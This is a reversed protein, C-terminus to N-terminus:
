YTRFAGVIAETIEKMSQTPAFYEDWESPQVQWEHQRMPSAVDHGWCRILGKEKDFNIRINFQEIRQNGPAEIGAGHLEFWILAYNEDLFKTGKYFMIEPALRSAASALYHVLKKFEPYAPKAVDLMIGDIIELVSYVKHAIPVENSNKTDHENLSLIHKCIGVLEGELTRIKKRTIVKYSGLPSIDIEMAGPQTKDGYELCTHWAHKPPKNGVKGLSLLEKIIIESNIPDFPLEDDKSDMKPPQREFGYDAWELWTKFTKKM